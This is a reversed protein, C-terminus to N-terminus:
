DKNFRKALGFKALMEQREEEKRKDWESEVEYVITFSPGSNVGVYAVEVDVLKRINQEEKELFANAELDADPGKFMKIKYM